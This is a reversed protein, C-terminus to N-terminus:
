CSHFCCVFVLEGLLEHVGFSPKAGKGLWYALRELNIAVLKQGKETPMPDYSGLVEDAPLGIRQRPLTVGIHFFEQLCCFEDIM